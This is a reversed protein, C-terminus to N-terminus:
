DDNARNVTEDPDRWVRLIVYAIFVSTLFSVFLAFVAWAPIGWWSGTIPWVPVMALFLILIGIGVWPKHIPDAFPIANKNKM